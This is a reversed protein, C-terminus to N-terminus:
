YELFARYSLKVERLQTRAKDNRKNLKLSQQFAEKAQDLYFKNKNNVALVFFSRGLLYLSNDTESNNQNIKEHIKIYGFYDGDNFIEKSREIYIYNLISIGIKFEKHNIATEAYKLAKDYDNLQKALFYAYNINSWENDDISIRILFYKNALDLENIKSYSKGLLKYARSMYIKRHKSTIFKTAYKIAQNYDKKYEFFSAWALNLSSNNSDIDFAKVLYNYASDTRKLKLLSYSAYIPADIFTPNEKIAQNYYLISKSIQKKNKTKVGNQYLFYGYATNYMDKNSKIENLQAKIKKRNIEEGKFNDISNIVEFYSDIPAAFSIQAFVTLFVISLTKKLM